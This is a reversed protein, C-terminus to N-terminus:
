RNSDVRFSDGPFRAGRSHRRELYGSTVQNREMCPVMEIDTTWPLRLSKMEPAKVLSVTDSFVLPHPTRADRSGSPIPVLEPPPLHLPDACIVSSVVAIGRDGVSFRCSKACTGPGPRRFALSGQVSTFSAPAGNEQSLTPVTHRSPGM